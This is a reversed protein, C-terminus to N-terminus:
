TLLRRHYNIQGLHYNLHGMLHLLAFHINKDTMFKDSPFHQTLQGDNMSSLTTDIAAAAQQLEFIIKEKAINKDAFEADRNRMYGNQGLIAGIFHQLNGALHLALNGASNLIQGDIQWLVAEDPYSNIEEMCKNLDRLLIERISSVLIQTSAEM